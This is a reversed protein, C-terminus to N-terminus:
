EAPKDEQLLTSLAMGDGNKALNLIQQITELDKRRLEKKSSAQFDMLLEKAINYFFVVASTVVGMPFGKALAASANDGKYPQITYLEGKRRKIPRYMVAAAKHLDKDEQLGTELDIYEGITIAELDPIFGYEVGDMEFFQEFPKNQNLVATIEAVIEEVVDLPFQAVERMDVGCFISVTKLMLFEKDADETNAAMFKQYQEVTIADLDTPINVKM